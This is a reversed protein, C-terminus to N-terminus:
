IVLLLILWLMLVIFNSYIISCQAILILLLNRMVVSCFCFCFFLICVLICLYIYLFIKLISSIIWLMKLIVLLAPFDHYRSKIHKDYMGNWPLRCSRKACGCLSFCSEIKGIVTFLVSDQSLYFIIQCLEPRLCNQSMCMCDLTLPKFVKPVMFILELCPYNSGILTSLLALDPPM